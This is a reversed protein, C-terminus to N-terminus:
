KITARVAKVEAPKVASAKNGFSNRVFTLVDAIEQDKLQAQPPMPNSYYEGEIEVDDNLGKLLITILKTKDGLVFSTKVLPPNMRPVGSGDAQHCALCIQQYLVKGRAMSAATTNGGAPGAVKKAAPKSQGLVLSYAGMLLMAAMMWRRM